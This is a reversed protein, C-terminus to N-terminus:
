GVVTPLPAFQLVNLTNTKFQNPNFVGGRFDDNPPLSPNYWGDASQTYIYPGDMSNYDVAMTSAGVRTFQTERVAYGVPSITVNQQIVVLTGVTGSSAFILKHKPDYVVGDNGRGIPLSTIKAGTDANLILMMPNAPNHCGIFLHRRVPDVDLGTPNICSMTSVDWMIPPSSWSATNLKIVSNQDAATMYLADHGDVVPYELPDCPQAPDTCSAVVNITSMLTGNISSLVAISGNVLTMIVQSRQADYVGNDVGVGAFIPVRKLFTPPSTSMNLVTIGKGFTGASGTMRASDGAFGLNGALVLGNCGTTNPVLTANQGTAWYMARTSNMQLMVLGDQKLGLFLRGGNSPDWTLRDWSGNPSLNSVRTSGRLALGVPSVWDPQTSTAPTFWPPPPANPIFGAAAGYATIDLNNPTYKNPNFMGGALDADAPTSPDYLGDASMVYAYPGGTSNSDVALTRAGVKTFQVERVAYSAASGSQVKQQIVALTGVTGSAAFILQHAADYSVGDNGRGIPVTTIRAGTDAHLILLMPSAPNGCGVFLHRRVPDVDLGTPDICNMTSVDWMVPPSTIASTSLKLVKNLDPANIWLGGRGDVVPFELPDCHQSPDCGTVVVNVTRLLNGNTANLVAVSGNVLTMLVTGSFADYVGNDIGVGRAVPVVKLV